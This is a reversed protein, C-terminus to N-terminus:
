LYLYEENMIWLQICTIVALTVYVAIPYGAGFILEVAIGVGNAIGWAILINFPLAVMITTLFSDFFDGYPEVVAFFVEYWAEIFSTGSIIYTIGWIIGAISLVLFAGSLYPTEVEFIGLISYLIWGALFSMGISLAIIVLSLVWWRYDKYYVFEGELRAEEKQAQMDEM